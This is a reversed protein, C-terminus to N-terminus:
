KDTPDSGLFSTLDPKSYFKGKAIKGHENFVPKNDEFKSTNSRSVEALAGEIDFGYMHAVGVATVIQDCLADLFGMRDKIILEFEPNKKLENSLLVTKSNSDFIMIRKDTNSAESMEDLMECFEESHCGVQVRQSAKTPNPVAADFWQKIEKVSM